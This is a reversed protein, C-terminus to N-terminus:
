GLAQAKIRLYKRGFEAFQDPRPDLGRIPLMETAKEESSDIPPRYAYRFVFYSIM